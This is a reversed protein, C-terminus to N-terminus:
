LEFNWRRRLKQKVPTKQVLAPQFRLKRLTEVAAAGFGYGVPEEKLIQIQTAFGAENVVWLLDAYGSVGEREARPPYKPAPDPGAIRADADTQGPEYVMAGTGSGTGGGTGTGLPGTRDGGSVLAMAGSGGAASLDLKLGGGPASPRESLQQPERMPETPLERIERQVVKEPEPDPPTMDYTAPAEETKEAVPPSHMAAQMVPVFLFLVANFVLAASFILILRLPKV